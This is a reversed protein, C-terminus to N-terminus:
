RRETWKLWQPLKVIEAYEDYTLFEDKFQAMNGKTKLTSVVKIITKMVAFLPLWFYNVIKVGTKEWEEVSYTTPGSPANAIVPIKVEKAIRENDAISHVSGSMALDAGSEAYINLRKIVEEIGLSEYCDTRGVIVFDNSKRADVAVKLKQVFDKVPIVEKGALVGCRKPSIQDELQAGSVGAAELERITRYVNKEDGYGTDADCIVPLNVSQVIAAARQIVESATLLGLDPMGWASAALPMGGIYILDFGAHEIIEASLADYVIPCLILGKKALVEKVTAM